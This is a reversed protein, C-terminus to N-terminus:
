PLLVIGRPAVIVSLAQRDREIEAPSLARDYVLGYAAAMAHLGGGTFGFRFAGTINTARSTTVAEAAGDVYLVGTNWNAGSQTYAIFHWGSADPVALASEHVTGATELFMADLGGHVKITLREGPSGTGAWEVALEGNGGGGGRKMVGVFTLATTGSIGANDCLM